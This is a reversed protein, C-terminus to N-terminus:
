YSRNVYKSNKDDFYINIVETHSLIYDSGGNEVIYMTALAHYSFSGALQEVTSKFYLESASDPDLDDEYYEQMQEIILYALREANSDDSLLKCLNIDVNGYEDLLSVALAPGGEYEYTALRGTVETGDSLYGTYLYNYEEIGYVETLYIPKTEEYQYDIILQNYDKNDTFSKLVFEIIPEIKDSSTLVYESNLLSYMVMDHVLRNGELEESIYDELIYKDQYETEAILEYGLEGEYDTLQLYSVFSVIIITLLLLFVRRKRM